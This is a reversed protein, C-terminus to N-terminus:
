RSLHIRYWCKWWRVHFRRNIFLYFITFYSFVTDLYCIVAFVGGYDKLKERAKAEIEEFDVTGLPQPGRRGHYVQIM